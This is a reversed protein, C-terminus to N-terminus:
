GALRINCSQSCEDDRICDPSFKLQNLHGIRVSVDDGIAYSEFPFFIRPM